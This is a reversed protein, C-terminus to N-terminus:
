KHSSFIVLGSTKKLTIKVSTDKILNSVLRSAGQVIYENDLNWVAGDISVYGEGNLIISFREYPPNTIIRTEDDYLPYICETDEIISLNIQRYKQRLLLNTNALIYDTRHGLACCIIISEHGRVIAADIALELDSSEKDTPYSEIPISKDKILQLTESSISDLDGVLLHPFIGCTRLHEAGHDCAIIFASHTQIKSICVPSLAGGAIIIAQTVLPINGEAPQKQM